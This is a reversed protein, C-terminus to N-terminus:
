FYLFIDNENPLRYYSFSTHGSLPRVSLTSFIQGRSRQIKIIQNDIQFTEFCLHKKLNHLGTPQVAIIDHDFINSDM